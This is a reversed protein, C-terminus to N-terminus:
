VKSLLVILLVNGLKALTICRKFFYAAVQYDRFDEFKEALGHYDEL